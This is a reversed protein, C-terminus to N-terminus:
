FCDHVCSLVVKGHLWSALSGHELFDFVLHFGNEV